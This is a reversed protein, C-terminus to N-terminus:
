RAPAAPPVVQYATLRLEATPKVRGGEDLETRVRVIGVGAAFTVTNVLTRSADARTRSEVEICDPFSGAPVTCRGGVSLVRYHEASGPAVVSTWTGGEVLPEHLLYRTQDRLGEGDVRLARGQRDVYSGDRFGVLEVDRTSREGLYIAEYSWRNGVALPFYRAAGAGPRATATRSTPASAAPAPPHACGLAAILALSVWPWAVSQGALNSM